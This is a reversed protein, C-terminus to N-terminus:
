ISILHYKESAGPDRRCAAPRGRCPRNRGVEAVPQLAGTENNALMVSVLAPPGGCADRAPPRSRGPRLAHRRDDGIARGSVARGRAGLRARHGLGAAAQGAPRSGRRLGADAGACQSRNRRVHLRRKAAAGRRGGCDRGAGGRGAPAGPPRRCPRLVPQRALDWAAAMAERAERRLPTTANWDLYVRDPM